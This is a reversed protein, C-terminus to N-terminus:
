LKWLAEEKEIHKLQSLIDKVTFGYIVTCNNISYGENLYVHYGNADIDYRFEKSFRNDNDILRDLIKSM